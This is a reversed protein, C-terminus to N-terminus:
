MYKIVAKGNTATDNVDSVNDNVNDNWKERTSSIFSFCFLIM